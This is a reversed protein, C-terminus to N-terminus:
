DLQLRAQQEAINIIDRGGTSVAAITLALTRSWKGEKRYLLGLV